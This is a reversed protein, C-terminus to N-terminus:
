NPSIPIHSHVCFHPTYILQSCLVPTPAHCSICSFTIIVLFLTPAQHTGHGLLGSSWHLHCPHMAHGLVPWLQDAYTMHTNHFMVDISGSRTKTCMVVRQHPVSIGSCICVTLLLLGGVIGAKISEPAVPCNMSISFVQDFFRQICHRGLAIEM